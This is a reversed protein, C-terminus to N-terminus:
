DNRCRGRPHDLGAGTRAATRGAGSDRRRRAPRGARRLGAPWSHERPDTALAFTTSLLAMALLLLAVARWWKGDWHEEAEADHWLKRATVYTLPLFLLSAWGFATLALDAAYAGPKGMWNDVVEGAATSLSPDTQSYSVLALALFATFGFLLVAGTLQASRALSRRFAAKWDTGATAARTAM